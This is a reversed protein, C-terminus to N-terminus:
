GEQFRLLETCRSWTSLIPAFMHYRLQGCAQLLALARSCPSWTGKLSSQTVAVALKHTNGGTSQVQHCYYRGRNPKRPASKQQSIETNNKPVLPMGKAHSTM